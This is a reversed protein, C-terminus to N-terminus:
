PKQILHQIIRMMEDKRRSEMERFHQREQRDLERELRDKEREEMEREFKLKKFALRQHQGDEGRPQASLKKKVLADNYLPVLDDLLKSKETEDESVGSARAAELNSAKHLRVLLLFRNQAKKGDIGPRSFGEVDKLAVAMSDWAHLKPPATSHM